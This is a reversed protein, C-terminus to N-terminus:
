PACLTDNEFFCIFSYSQFENKITIILKHFVIFNHQINPLCFVIRFFFVRTLNKKTGKECVPLSSAQDSTSKKQAWATRAGLSQRDDLRRQDLSLLLGIPGLRIGHLFGSHLGFLSSGVLVLGAVVLCFGLVVSAGLHCTFLSVSRGLGKSWQFLVERFTKRGLQKFIADSGFALVKMSLYILVLTKKRNCAALTRTGPLLDIGTNVLQLGAAPFGKIAILSFKPACCPVENSGRCQIM